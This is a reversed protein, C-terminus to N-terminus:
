EGYLSLSAVIQYDVFLNYQKLSMVFFCCAKNGHWNKKVLNDKILIVKRYLLWLFVKIKLPLKIKWLYINHPVIDSDLMAHYMSSVSFQGSSTLTWRFTDSQDNLHLNAIELVLNHGSLKDHFLYKTISHQFCKSNNCEKEWSHQVFESIARKLHKRRAV